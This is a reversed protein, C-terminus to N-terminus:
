FLGTYSIGIGSILNFSGPLHQIKKDARKQGGEKTENCEFSWSSLPPVTTGSIQIQFMKSRGEKSLCHALLSAFLEILDFQPIGRDKMLASLTRVYNALTKIYQFSNPGDALSHTFKALLHWGVKM